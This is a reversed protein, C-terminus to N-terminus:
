QEQVIVRLDDGGVPQFLHRSLCHAPAGAGNAGLQEVGVVGNLVGTDEEAKTANGAVYM